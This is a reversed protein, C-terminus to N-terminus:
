HFVIHFLYAHCIVNGVKLTGTLLGVAFHLFSQSGILLYRRAILRVVPFPCVVVFKDKVTITVFFGFSLVKESNRPFTITKKKNKLLFTKIGLRCCIYMEKSFNGTITCM